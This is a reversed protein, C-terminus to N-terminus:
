QDAEETQPLIRQFLFDEDRLIPSLTRRCDSILDRLGQQDERSKITLEGAKLEAPSDAALVGTLTELTELAATYCLLERYQDLEEQSLDERLKAWLARLKIGVGTEWAAGGREGTLERLIELTRLREKWLLDDM